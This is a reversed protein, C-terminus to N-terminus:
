PLSQMWIGDSKAYVVKDGAANVYFSHGDIIQTNLVVPDAPQALDVLKLDATVPYVNAASHDDAFLVHSGTGALASDVGTFSRDAGGTTARAHLTSGTAGLDTLWLAYRGDRTFPARTVNGNAGTVLRDATANLSATQALILDRKETGEYTVTTSYLVWGLDNSWGARQVFGVTVIPTPNPSVVTTRRLQDGVTYLLASADPTFTGWTVSGDVNTITSGDAIKGQSSTTVFFIRQGTADAAWTTSADTAIATSTWSAGGADGADEAIALVRDFRQLTATLSGDACSASVVHAGAFGYSPRCTTQSGRGASALLTQQATGDTREVIVDATTPQANAAYLVWVGDDSAAVADDAFATTGVHVVGGAASWVTLDGLNTVYDVGTWVFVVKGRVSVTAAQDTIRTPAAGPALAVVYLGTDTRYVVYGDSTVGTVGGNSVAVIQRPTTDVPAGADAGTDNAPTADIPSGAEDGSAAADSAPAGADAGVTVGNDNSSTCAFFAAAGLCLLTISTSKM